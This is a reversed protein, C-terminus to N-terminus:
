GLTVGQTFSATLSEDGQLPAITAGDGFDYEVREPYSRTIDGKVGLTIEFYLSWSSRKLM